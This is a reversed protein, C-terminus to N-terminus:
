GRVHKVKVRDQDRLVALAEHLISVRGEGHEDYNRIRIRLCTYKDYCESSVAWSKKLRTSGIFIFIFSCQGIVNETRLKATKM